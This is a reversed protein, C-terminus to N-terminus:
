EELSVTGMTDDPSQVTITANCAASCSTSYYTTTTSGGGETTVTIATMRWQANDTPAHTLVVSKSSGSWANSTYSGVDASITGAYGSVVAISIATINNESTITLTNNKYCRIASGSTYYKPANTGTSQAFTLTCNDMTVETVDAANEYGKDSFTVTKEIPESSGSGGSSETRKYVAYYTTNSAPITTVATASPNTTTEDLTTTLWGVFTYGECPTPDSLDPIADGAYGSKEAFKSGNAYFTATFTDDETWQAYLTLNADINVSAKDAYSSGTGNAKTNWGTFTYHERTYTNSSLNVSTSQCVQQATMSGEGGNADFTITVKECTSCDTSYNSYTTSGGGVTVVITKIRAQKGGSGSTCAPSTWTAANPSYSTEWGGGDYTGDFTFAISSMNGVSSTITLTAGKYIRYDTGNNLVGSSTSLTIGDKPFSTDKTADLTIETSGGGDSTQKDAYVAYYTAPGVVQPFDSQEIMLDSGDGSYTSGDTWGMFVRDDDCDAAEPPTPRANEKVETTTDTNGDKSWTITYKTTAAAGEEYASTLSAIDVNTGKKDGWIYEVLEPYDIFPNRNNQKKTGKNYTTNGYIVENRILEKESVPDLRHWKLMLEATYNKFGNNESGFAGGSWSSCKNAYCTAMYFYGRAIDGKYEDGPEYVKGTHTATPSYTKGNYTYSTISNENGTSLKGLESCSSSSYSTGAGSFEGFLYSSRNNNSKCDTPYIHFADSVMPTAENFWSQPVTHERNMGGGVTGASSWSTIPASYTCNSYIDVITSGDADETDSWQMLINLNDYGIDTHSSIIGMLAQRLADSTKGDAASYYETLTVSPTVDAWISLSVLLCLLLTFFTKKNM